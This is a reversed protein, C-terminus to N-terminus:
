RGEVDGIDLVRPEEARHLKYESFRIVIRLRHARGKKDRIEQGVAASKPLGGEAEYRFRLPQEGDKCDPCLGMGEARVVNGETDAWVRGDLRGTVAYVYLRGDRGLYSPEHVFPPLWLSGADLRSVTVAKLKLSAPTEGAVRLSLDDGAYLRAVERRSAVVRSNKDVEEAVVERTFSRSSLADLLERQRRYLLEESPHGDGPAPPTLQPLAPEAVSVGAASVVEEAQRTPQRAPGERGRYGAAVAQLDCRTPAGPGKSKFLTLGYMKTQRFLAMVTKGRECSPCDNLGFAHGLEHALVDRRAVALTIVASTFYGDRAASSLEGLHDGRMHRDRKVLINGEVGESLRLDGGALAKRWDTVARSLKRREEPTFDGPQYAIVAEVRPPWRAELLPPSSECPQAHSTHALLCLAALAILTRM